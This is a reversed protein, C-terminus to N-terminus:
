SWDCSCRRGIWTLSSRLINVQMDTKNNLTQKERRQADTLWGIQWNTFQIKSSLNALVILHFYGLIVIRNRLLCNYFFHKRHSPQWVYLMTDCRTRFSRSSVAARWKRLTFVRTYPWTSLSCWASFQAIFVM